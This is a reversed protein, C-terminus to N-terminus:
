CCRWGDSANRAVSRRATGVGGTASAPLGSCGRDDRPDFGRRCAAMQWGRRTRRQRWGGSGAATHEGLAADVGARHAPRRRAPRHVPASRRHAPLMRRGAPRADAPDRAGPQPSPRTAGALERRTGARGPVLARPGALHDRPRLRGALALACRTIRRIPRRRAVDSAASCGLDVDAGPQHRARPQIDDGAGGGPQRRAHSHCQRRALRNGRHHRRSRHYKPTAELPRWPHLDTGLRHAAPRLRRCGVAVPRVGIRGVRGRRAYM